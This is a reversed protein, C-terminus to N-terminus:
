FKVGLSISKKAFHKHSWKDFLEPISSYQFTPARASFAIWSLLMKNSHNKLAWGVRIWKEYSGNGYYKEPLIMILDHLERLEYEDLQFSSKFTEILENLEEQNSISLIKTVEIFTKGKTVFAKCAEVWHRVIVKTM